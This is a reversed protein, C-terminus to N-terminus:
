GDKLQMASLMGKYYKHDLDKYTCQMFNPVVEEMIMLRRLHLMLAVKAIVLFEIGLILDFDDFSIVMM